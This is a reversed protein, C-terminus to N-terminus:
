VKMVFIEEMCNLPYVSLVDYYFKSLEIMRFSHCTPSGYRLSQNICVVSLFLFSNFLLIRKLFCSIIQSLILTIFNM